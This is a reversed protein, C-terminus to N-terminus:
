GLSRGGQRFSRGNWRFTQPVRIHTIWARPDYWLRVSAFLTTRGPQFGQRPAHHLSSAPFSPSETRPDARHNRDRRCRSSARGSRAANRHRPFNRLLWPVSVSNQQNEGCFLIIRPRPSFRVALRARPSLVDATARSAVGNFADGACVSASLSASETGIGHNPVLVVPPSVLFRMPPSHVTPSFTWLQISTLSGEVWRTRVRTGSVEWAAMVLITSWASCAKKSHRSM